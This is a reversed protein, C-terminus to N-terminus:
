FVIYLTNQTFVLSSHIDRSILFILFMFHFLRTLYLALLFLLQLHCSWLSVLSIWGQKLEYGSRVNGLPWSYVWQRSLKLRAKNGDKRELCDNDWKIIFMKNNDYKNSANLKYFTNAHPSVALLRLSLSFKCRPLINSSNINFSSM